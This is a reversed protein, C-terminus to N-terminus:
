KKNVSIIWHWCFRNLLPIKSLFEDVGVIMKDIKDPITFRNKLRFARYILESFYHVYGSCFWMPKINLGTWDNKSFFAKWDSYKFGEMEADAQSVEENEMHAFKCLYKRFRKIMSFYFWNPEIGILLLGDKKIVRRFEALAKIPNEFHHFTAVIYLADFTNDAFPLEMGDAAFYQFSKNSGAFNNETRKLTEGSIDSLVLNLDNKLHAADFGSGAGVELILSGPPLSNIKDWIIKHYYINRYASLQHVSQADETFEDHYHAESESLENIKKPIAFYVNNELTYQRGCSSCRYEKEIIIMTSKCDVCKLLNTELM